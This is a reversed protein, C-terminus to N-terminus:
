ERNESIFDYLYYNTKKKNLYNEYLSEIKTYYNNIIINRVIQIIEM